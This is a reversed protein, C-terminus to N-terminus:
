CPQMSEQERTSRAGAPQTSTPSRPAGLLTLSEQVLRECEAAPGEHMVTKDPRVVLVRGVTAAGPVLADSLDEWATTGRSGSGRPEVRVVAGGAAQWQRLTSEGLHAVPDV